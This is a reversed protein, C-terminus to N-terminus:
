TSIVQFCLAIHPIKLVMIAKIYGLMPEQDKIERWVVKAAKMISCIPLIFSFFFFCRIVPGNGVDIFNVKLVINMYAECKRPTEMHHATISLM